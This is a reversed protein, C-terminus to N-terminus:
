ISLKPTEYAALKWVQSRKVTCKLGLIDFLLSCSNFFQPTEWCCFFFVTSLVQPVPRTFVSVVKVSGSSQKHMFSCYCYNVSHDTSDKSLERWTSCKKKESKRYSVSESVVKRIWPVVGLKVALLKLRDKLVQPDASVRLRSVRLLAMFVYLQRRTWM